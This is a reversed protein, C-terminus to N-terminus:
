GSGSHRARPRTLPWANGVMRELLGPTLRCASHSRPDRGQTLTEAWRTHVSSGAGQRAQVRSRRRSGHPRSADLGRSRRLTGWRSNSLRFAHPSCRTHVLGGQTLLGRGNGHPRSSHLIPPTDPTSCCCGVWCRASLLLTSQFM